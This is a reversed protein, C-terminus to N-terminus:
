VHRGARLNEITATTYTAVLHNRPLSGWRIGCYAQPASAAAGHASALLSVLLVSTALRRVIRTM